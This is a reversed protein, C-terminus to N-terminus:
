RYMLDFTLGLRVVAVIVQYVQYQLVLQLCRQYATLRVVLSENTKKNRRKKFYESLVQQLDEDTPDVNDTGTNPDTDVDTNTDGTDDLNTNASKESVTEVIGLFHLVRLFFKFEISKPVKSSISVLFPGNCRTSWFVETGM